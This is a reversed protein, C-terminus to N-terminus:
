VIPPGQSHLILRYALARLGIGVLGPIGKLFLFLTQELAYRQVSTSQGDLYYRLPGRDAAAAAADPMKSHSGPSASTM